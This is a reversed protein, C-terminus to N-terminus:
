PFSTLIIASSFSELRHHWSNMQFVDNNGHTLEVEKM